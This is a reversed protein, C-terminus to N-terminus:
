RKEDFADEMKQAIMARYDFRGDAEVEKMHEKALAHASTQYVDKFQKPSLNSTALTTKMAQCRQRLLNELTLEAFGSGSGKYEKGLDEIVLVDVQRCRDLVTVPEEPDDDYMINRIAAEKLMDATIVHVSFGAVYAAKALVAIAHSKGTSNAGWLYIGWGKAVMEPLQELWTQLIPRHSADDPVDVLRAKWFRKGLGMNLCASDTLKRKATWAPAPKKKRATM